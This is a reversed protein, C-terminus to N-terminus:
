CLPKVDVKNEQEGIGEIYWIQTLSARFCKKYPRLNVYVSKEKSTESLLDGIYSNKM